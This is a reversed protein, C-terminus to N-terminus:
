DKSSVRVDQVGHQHIFASRKTGFNHFSRHFLGASTHFVCGDFVCVGFAHYFFSVLFRLGDKLKIYAWILRLPVLMNVDCDHGVVVCVVM